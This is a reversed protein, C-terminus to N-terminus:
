SDERKKFLIVIMYAKSPDGCCGISIPQYGQMVMEDISKEIQEKTHAMRVVYKEPMEEV